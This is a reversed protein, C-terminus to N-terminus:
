YSQLITKGLLGRRSGYPHLMPIKLILNSIPLYGSQIIRMRRRLRRPVHNLYENLVHFLDKEDNIRCHHDVIKQERNVSSIGPQHNKSRHESYTFEVWDDDLETMTIDALSLDSLESGGRLILTKHLMYFIARQLGRPDRLDFAHKWLIKDQEDTVISPKNSVHQRRVSQLEKTRGNILRRLFSFKPMKSMFNGDEGHISVCFRNVAMTLTHFTKGSYPNGSCDLIETFFRTLTPILEDLSVDTLERPVEDVGLREFREASWSRWRNTAWRNSKLTGQGDSSEALLRLEEDTLPPNMM